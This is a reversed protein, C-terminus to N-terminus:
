QSAGLYSGDLVTEFILLESGRLARCIVRAYLVVAFHEFYCKPAGRSAKATVQWGEVVTNLFSDTKAWVSHLSSPM